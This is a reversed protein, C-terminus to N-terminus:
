RKHDCSKPQQVRRGEKYTQRDPYGRHVIVELTLANIRSNPLIAITLGNGLDLLGSESCHYVSYSNSLLLFLFLLPYRYVIVVYVELNFFFTCTSLKKINGPDFSVPFLRLACFVFHQSQLLLSNARLGVRFLAFISLDM